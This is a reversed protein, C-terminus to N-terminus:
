QGEAIAAAAAASTVRLDALIAQIQIGYNVYATDKGQYDVQSAYASGRHLAVVRCQYDCVPSGSSGQDTDTFYRVTTADAATVLNNRFAVRKPRGGPHQVINVAIRSTHGVTVLSPSISPVPRGAEV